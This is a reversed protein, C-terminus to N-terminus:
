VALYGLIAKVTEPNDIKGQSLLLRIEEENSPEYKSPQLGDIQQPSLPVALYKDEIPIKYWHKKGQKLADAIQKQKEEIFFVCFKFFAIASIVAFTAGVGGFVNKQTDTITDRHHGVGWLILLALALCVFGVIKSLKIKSKM